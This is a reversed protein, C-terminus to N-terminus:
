RDFVLLGHYGDPIILVGKHVIARSPNGPLEFQEILKPAMLDAIDAITVLGLQRDVTYLRDGAITPKGLHRRQTGIRYLPVDSLQRRESRDLLLYGGRTIAMTRDSHAILGNGSGIRGPFNDGTYCPGGEAKLDYWHLGSVHWFACTYRGDILGRMMQDGYLLGPHQDELVMRPNAPNALDVIQIKHVGIQVMAYTGDGPVEVQRITKDRVRYRGIENLRHGNVLEYIGLGATGEAIHILDGAVCVDTAKDATATHGLEDFRPAINLVRVGATGCAVIATGEVMDAAYVQGDTRYVRYPVDTEAPRVDPVTAATRNEAVPTRSMGTASLVHLDSQGGAVYIHDEGPVLGGVFNPRHEDGAKPCKWHGVFQPQRPEKVNLVFVGNLTDAVFAYDGAITVSWLDNHIDYCPPFKVRSVPKPQAADAINLVELGHGHGFGQDGPKSRPRTRSHHGTAVYLFDGRVDLGDGYGDLPVRSTIHPTWPNRVDVTVVESAAWVGTYVYGNREVVSQAEGTRVTSLHRPTTADSVDILEVGFSRCAVFLVDGSKCVGTAFEVTDYRSVLTPNAPDNVDVIFLGDERSTIYALGAEVVIQRVRGLGGLKGVPQPKGPETTDLVHLTRNGIAFAHQGAITVDMTPGIGANFTNNLKPGFDPTDAFLDPHRHFYAYAHLAVTTFLYHTEAASIEQLDVTTLMNWITPLDRRIMEARESMLVLHYGGLPFRVHALATLGGKQNLMQTRFLKWAEQAGHLEPGDWQCDSALAAWDEDSHFTRYFPGPFDRDLQMQATQKLLDSIVTRKRADELFHLYANLRFGNQNAYIPHGNLEVHNGPQLQQWRLGDREALLEDHLKRWYEDDTGKYLAYLTPILISVHNNRFGKWSFGVHSETAGDATKISFNYKELRRGIAGLKQRIWQRDDDTASDSRAFRALAIIYTTHQDMSSDDYYASHDDPHPGRPVLGEVPCVGGIFKLAAYLEEAKRRLYPDPSAEYADLLAVLTHGCHLATDAIRSGYGWPKPLRAKIQAPTTWSDKTSLKAGYLVLTQPDQFQEFYKEALRFTQKGLEDVTLRQDAADAVGAAMMLASLCAVCRMLM